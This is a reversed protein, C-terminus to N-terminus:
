KHQEASRWGKRFKLTKRVARSLESLPLAESLKSWMQKRPKSRLGGDIGNETLIQLAEERWLLQALAYADIDSNRQCHKEYSLNVKKKSGEVRILGWWAPVMDKAKEIHSASIALTVTDFVRSYQDVQGPLRELSDRESKIEFGHLSGNIVAIDIRADGQCIGLEDIVVSFTEAVFPPIIERHLAARIDIDRM